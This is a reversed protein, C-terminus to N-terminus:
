EGFHMIEHLVDRNVQYQPPPFRTDPMSRFFDNLCFKWDYLEGHDPQKLLQEIFFRGTVDLWLMIIRVFSGVWVKSIVGHFAKALRMMRRAMEFGFTQLTRLGSTHRQRWSFSENLKKYLLAMLCAVREPSLVVPWKQFFLDARKTKNEKENSNPQRNWDVIQTSVHTLRASVEEILTDLSLSGYPTPTGSSYLVRFTLEALAEDQREELWAQKDIDAAKRLIARALARDFLSAQHPIPLASVRGNFERKIRRISSAIEFVNELYQQKPNNERDLGEPIRDSSLSEDVFIHNPFGAQEEYLEPSWKEIYINIVASVRAYIEQFVEATSSSM